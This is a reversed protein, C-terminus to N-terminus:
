KGQLYSKKQQFNRKAECIRNKVNYFNRKSRLYSKKQQFNAFTMKKEYSQLTNRRIPIKGTQSSLVLSM